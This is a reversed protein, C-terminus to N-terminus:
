ALGWSRYGLRIFGVNSHADLVDVMPCLNLDGVLIFDDFSMLHINAGAELARKIGKNINGGVDYDRPGEREITHWTTGDGIATVLAEVHSGDSGDDCVHWHLNPYKLHKKLSSISRLAAKTRKYTAFLLWVPPWESQSM